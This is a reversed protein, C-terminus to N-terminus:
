FIQDPTLEPLTKKTMKVRFAGIMVAASSVNQSLREKLYPIERSVDALLRSEHFIM